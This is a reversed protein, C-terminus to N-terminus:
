WSSNQFDKVMDVSEFVNGVVEIRHPARYHSLDDIDDYRRFEVCWGFTVDSFFVIGIEEGLEEIDNSSGHWVGDSGEKLPPMYFRKCKVIDLEYIDKDNNDQHNTSQLPIIDDCWDCGAIGSQVRIAGNKGIMPDDIFRKDTTDWFRFKFRNIM